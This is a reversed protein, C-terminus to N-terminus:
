FDYDLTCAWVGIPDETDRGALEAMCDEQTLHDIVVVDAHALQGPDPTFMILVLAFLQM